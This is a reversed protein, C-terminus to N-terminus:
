QRRQNRACVRHETFKLDTSDLRSPFLNEVVYKSGWRMGLAGKTNLNCFVNWPGQNMMSM